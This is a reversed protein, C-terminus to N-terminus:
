KNVWKNKFNCNKYDSNINIYTSEIKEDMWSKIKAVQKEKTRLSRTLRQNDYSTTIYWVGRNKYLTAM